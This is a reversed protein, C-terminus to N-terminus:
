KLKLTLYKRLAEKISLFAIEELNIDKIDTLKWEAIEKEDYNVNLSEARCIFFSDVTRYEVEKYPYINPFSCLYSLNNININLEEKVERILAEELSENNDVFGGPLDLKGIGPEKNRRTLIIKSEYEIIGAVASSPNKYYIFSCNNCIFKKADVM